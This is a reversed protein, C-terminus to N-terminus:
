SAPGVQVDQLFASYTASLFENLRRFEKVDGAHTPTDINSVTQFQLLRSFHQVATDLSKWPCAAFAATAAAAGATSCIILALAVLLALTQPRM